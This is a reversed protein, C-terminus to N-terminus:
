NGVRYLNLTTRPLITALSELITIHSQHTISLWGGEDMSLLWFRHNRLPPEMVNLLDFFPPKQSIGPSAHSPQKYTDMPMIIPQMIIPNM